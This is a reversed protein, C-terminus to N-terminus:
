SERRPGRNSRAPPFSRGDRSQDRRRGLRTRRQGVRSGCRAVQKGLKQLDNTLATEVPDSFNGSRLWDSSRQMRTGLDNEDLGDLASRLKGSAAPQTPSLERAATRMQQTLRGLDDTVKQRDNVMKDVEQASPFSPPQGSTRRANQQAVLERVQDAQQKQRAALQEATQAMSNLRGAADQQQLGGLLDTAQRLRDAARRSDAASANRSAARRMDDNAQRLRDLAQQAAQQRSDAAQEAPNSRREPRRKGIPQRRTWGGARVTRITRRSAGLGFREATRDGQQGQTQQGQQGQQGGQAQQQGQQGNRSLQQEMQQQLQQAERQLMEQQWKQEATQSAM